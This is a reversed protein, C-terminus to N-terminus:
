LIMDCTDKAIRVIFDNLIDLPEDSCLGYEISSPINSRITKNSKTQYISSVSSIESSKM